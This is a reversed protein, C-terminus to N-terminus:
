SFWRRRKPQAAQQRVAEAESLPTGDNSCFREDKEIDYRYRCKPCRVSLDPTIPPVETGCGPCYKWEPILVRWCRCDPLIYPPERDFWESRLQKDSPGTADPARPTGCKPCFNVEDITLGCQHCYASRIFYHDEDDGGPQMGPPLTTEAM